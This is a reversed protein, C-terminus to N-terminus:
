LIKQKFTTANGMIDTVVLEFDGTLPITKDKRESWITATKYDYHMLLWEGNITAVFSKIGSLNDKIKFRVGQRNLLVPKITPPIVDQLFTFEGFERTFFQIQGHTWEGGMYTFAKGNVRYLAYKQEAPYDRTPKLTVGISQHIPVTRSGVTFTETSDSNFKYNTMLYLTDYLADGPFQIDMIDSYYKYETGSPISLKLNPKVIRGNIQLSDPITKRLDHLFVQQNQNFYAPSWTSSSGKSYATVIPAPGKCSLMFINEHIDYVFEDAMTELLSVEQVVPNPKIKFILQSSNGRSDVMKIKVQTLKNPNVKIRGSSPSENYFKLGNGDDLYLKYFRTGKNRMTKFDMLTYIARTEALDIKEIDQKFILTSDVWLEFYNVGGYFPSKPQLRDKALIEVGITGSALIPSAIVYDNGIRNGYFEFRGFRDNIRAKEDLTRLAIKEPAPPLNDSIEKFKAVKLPDLAFNNPDQINFHLHPGGSSGSNGSLAIVDGQKVPFQNQLFFLDVEGQKLRYQENLIYDAVPGSFKDLHAYLTTNGDPHTIYIVNGYGNTSMTVRSIYGSKSALVEAGVMNNTRIDIGSHFHTARLEGMTGALSGPQGPKVPYLYQEDNTFKEEPKNFQGQAFCSCTLLGATLVSSLKLSWYNRMKLTHRLCM